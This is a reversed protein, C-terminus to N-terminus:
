PNFCRVSYTLSPPDVASAGNSACLRLTVTGLSAVFADAILGAPAASPLGVACEAGVAANPMSVPQDSCSGATISAIDATLTARLSSSIPAGSVGITMGQDAIAVGDTYISLSRSPGSGIFRATKDGTTTLFVWDGDYADPAGVYQVYPGVGIGYQSGETGSPNVTISYGPSVAGNTGTPGIQLRRTAGDYFMGSWGAVAYFPVIGTGTPLHTGFVLTSNASAYDAIPITSDNVGAIVGGYITTRSGYGGYNAIGVINREMYPAFIDIQGDSAYNAIGFKLAEFDPDILRGWVAGEVVLGYPSSNSAGYVVVSSLLFDNVDKVWFGISGNDAVGYM